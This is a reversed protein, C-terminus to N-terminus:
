GQAASSPCAGTLRSALRRGFMFPASRRFLLSSAVLSGSTGKSKGGTGSDSASVVGSATVWFVSSIASGAVSAYGAVSASGSTAAGSGSGITTVPLGLWIVLFGM